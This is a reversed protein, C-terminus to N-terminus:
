QWGLRLGAVTANATAATTGPHQIWQVDPTVSWHDGLKLQYAAELVGEHDPVPRGGADAANADRVHQQLEPSVIARVWGVALADQARGPVIGTWHLGAEAVWSYTSRDAPAGGVRVWGSIGAAADAPANWFKQEFVGYGGQNGHHVAPDLGTVAFSGGNADRRQDPFNATHRWAGLKLTGPLAGKAGGWEHVTEGILFAGQTRSLSFRLGHANVVPDGDPSDFSDGDYAGARVAWNEAPRYELRAGLAPVFYIPGGNIVNAGIGAEWGFASNTLMAGGETGTFEEDAGLSGLRLSAHDGAFAQEIWADYLRLSGYAELNSAVLADGVFRGSLDHGRIFAVNAFAHGGKWWGTLKELDADAAGYALSQVTGGTKVGGAVDGIWLGTLAVTTTLGREALHAHLARWANASAAAGSPSFAPSSGPGDPVAAATVAGSAAGSDAPAQALAATTGLALWTVLLSLVRQIM